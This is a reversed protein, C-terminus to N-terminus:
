DNILNEFGNVTKIHDYCQSYINTDYNYSNLELQENVTFITDNINSKRTNENTYGKINYIVIQEKNSGSYNQFVEINDVIVYVGNYSSTTENIVPVTETEITGDTHELQIEQFETISPSQEIYICSGTLAM